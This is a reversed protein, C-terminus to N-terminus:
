CAAWWWVPWRSAGEGSADGVPSGLAVLSLALGLPALLFSLVLGVVALPSLPRRQPPGPPLGEPRLLLTEDRRPPSWSAPTPQHDAM